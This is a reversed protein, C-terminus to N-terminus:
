VVGFVTTQALALLSIGIARDIRVLPNSELLAGLEPGPCHKVSKFLSETVNQVRHGLLLDVLRVLQLFLRQGRVAVFFQLLLKLLQVLLHFLQLLLHLLAADSSTM